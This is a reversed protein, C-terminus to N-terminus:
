GCSLAQSGPPIGDLRVAELLGAGLNTVLLTGSGAALSFERPGQGATISGTVQHGARCLAAHTDIVMLNHSTGSNAVVLQRDHDIAEVGIPNDGVPVVAALAHAPDTRLKTTGYGLVANSSQATIWVYQGDASTVIRSPECGAPAPSKTLV